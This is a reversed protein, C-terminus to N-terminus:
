FEGTRHGLQRAAFFALIPSLLPPPYLAPGRWINSIVQELQPFFSVTGNWGLPSLGTKHRSQKLCFRATYFHAPM